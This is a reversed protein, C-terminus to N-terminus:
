VPYGAIEAIQKNASLLRISEAVLPHELKSDNLLRYSYWGVGSFGLFFLTFGASSNFM